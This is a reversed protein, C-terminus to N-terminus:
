LAVKYGFPEPHPAWEPLIGSRKLRAIPGSSCESEKNMATKLSQGILFFDELSMRGYHM